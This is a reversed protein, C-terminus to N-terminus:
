NGSQPVVEHFASKARHVSHFRQFGKARYQRYPGPSFEGLRDKRALELDSYGDVGYVSYLAYCAREKAHISDVNV